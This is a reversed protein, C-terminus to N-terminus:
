FMLVIHPALPGIFALFSFSVVCLGLFSFRVLGRTWLVANGLHSIRELLEKAEHRLALHWTYHDAVAVIIRWTKTPQSTSTSTQQITDTRATAIIYVSGSGIHGETHTPNTTSNQLTHTPVKKPETFYLYAIIIESCILDSFVPAFMYKPEKPTAHIIYPAPTGSEASTQQIIIYTSNKSVIAIIHVSGQEKDTPHIAETTPQHTITCEPYTMHAPCCHEETKKMKAAYSKAAAHQYLHRYSRNPRFTHTSPMYDCRGNTSTSPMQIRRCTITHILCQEGFLSHTCTYFIRATHSTCGTQRGEFKNMWRSGEYGKGRRICPANLRYFPCKPLHYSPRGTLGEDDPQTSKNSVLVIRSASDRRNILTCIMNGPSRVLGEDDPQSIKTTVMVICCAIACNIVLYSAKTGPRGTLGDDEPLANWNTVMVIRLAIARHTVLTGLTNGPSGTLGEDEPTFGGNYVCVICAAIAQYTVLAGLTAGPRGTLGEKSPQASGNCSLAIRLAISRNAVLIDPMFGLWGDSAFTDQPSTHFCRIMVLQIRLNMFTYVNTLIRRLHSPASITYRRDRPMAGEGCTAQHLTCNMRTYSQLFEWHNWILEDLREMRQGRVVFKRLYTQPMSHQSKKAPIDMSPLPMRLAMAM